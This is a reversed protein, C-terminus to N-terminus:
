LRRKRPADTAKSAATVRRYLERVPQGAEGALAKAVEKPRLGDALLELIRRELAEGALVSPQAAAEAAGLVLTIEGRPTEGELRAALEAVSGRLFQEYLKTMERALVARRSPMARALERLTAAVRRPSEFLVAPEETQRLRDVSRRRNAGSRPLFGFFRFPGVVLGSAAVAAMVASPGPVPTIPVGAAAAAQVLRAGPDAVSPTGADTVLALQEGAQLRRVWARIRGEEVNGDLRELPKGGIGLHSLLARSRRTDEALVRDAARLAEIARLTIDGLNGIPTAVLALQGSSSRDRDPM